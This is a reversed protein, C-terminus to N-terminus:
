EGLMTAIKRKAAYSAKRQTSQIGSFEVKRRAEDLSKQAIWSWNKEILNYKIIVNFGKYFSRIEKTPIYIENKNLM